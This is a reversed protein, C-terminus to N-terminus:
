KETECKETRKQEPIALKITITTGIWIQSDRSQALPYVEHIALGSETSYAAMLQQLLGDAVGFFTFRGNKFRALFDGSYEVLVPKGFWVGGDADECMPRLPPADPFPTVQGDRLLYLNLGELIWLNKRSDEYPTVGASFNNAALKIPYHTARGDKVRTVGGADITVQAGSPALYLKIRPNQYQPPAPVIKGDRLYVSGKPTAIIPEGDFDPFFELVQDSPLGDATTYNTFVGNRYVILGGDETAILLSGDGAGYLGTFRNTNIGRSNNKDFVTFRVGDFRALGDFTTLWLYGDRTQVVSTVTNQPLGDDTTWHDFRYPSYQAIATAALLCLLASQRLLARFLPILRTAKAPDVVFQPIMALWVSTLKVGQKVRRKDRMERASALYRVYSRLLRRM